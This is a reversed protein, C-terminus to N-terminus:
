TLADGVNFYYMFKRNENGKIQQVNLRVQLDLREMYFVSKAM